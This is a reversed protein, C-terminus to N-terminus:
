FGKPKLKVRKLIENKSYYIVTKKLLDIKVFDVKEMLKFKIYPGLVRLEIDVNLNILNLEAKGNFDTQTEISPESDKVRINVGSLPQNESEFIEFTVKKLDTQCYCDVFEFYFLILIIYKIKLM